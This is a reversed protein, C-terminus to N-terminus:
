INKRQRSALAKLRDLGFMRPMALDFIWRGVFTLLFRVLLAKNGRWIEKPPTRKLAEDVVQRAYERTDLAGEQSHTQRRNYQAVIPLYLSAPPLPRLAGDDADRLVAINSRVAATVVLLVRVGFPQLETRLTNSYAHLAAKSANYVAGFTYPTLASISGIQLILPCPAPSPSTATAILLPSLAQTLAMVGLVNTEFVSRAATLDIDLAPVTYNRGANNVLIDLRGGTLGQVEDKIAAISAPDTVDLRCTTILGPGLSGGTSLADLDSLLEPKRATAIVHLGRAYFEEALAHGIGSSCGTILVVRRERERKTVGSM